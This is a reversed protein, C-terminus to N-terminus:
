ARGIYIKGLEIYSFLTFVVIASMATIIEQAIFVRGNRLLLSQEFM